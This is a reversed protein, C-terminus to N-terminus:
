RRGARLAHRLGAPLDGSAALAAHAQAACSEAEVRGGPADVAITTLPRGGMRVLVLAQRAEDPEAEALSIYRVAGPNTLEIEAVTVPATLKLPLPAGRRKADGANLAQQSKFDHSSHSLTDEAAVGRTTLLALPPLNVEARLANISGSLDKWIANVIAEASLRDPPLQVEGVPAHQLRVLLRAGRYAAGDPGLPLELDDVPETLELERIFVPANM